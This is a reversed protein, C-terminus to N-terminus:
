KKVRLDLCTITQHRIPTILLRVLAPQHFTRIASTIVWWVHLQDASHVAVCFDFAVGDGHGKTCLKQQVVSKPRNRGDSSVRSFVFVAVGSCLSDIPCVTMDTPIIVFCVCTIDYMIFSVGINVGLLSHSTFM